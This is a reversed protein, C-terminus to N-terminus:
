FNVLFEISVAAGYAADVDSEVFCQLGTVREVVTRLLHNDNFLSGTCVIQEIGLDSLLRLPMIDFLNRILGVYIQQIVDVLSTNDLRINSVQAFKGADHREGNITPLIKLECGENLESNNAIDRIKSHLHDADISPLGLDSQWSIVMKIFDNM